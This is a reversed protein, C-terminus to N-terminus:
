QLAMELLVMRIGKGWPSAPVMIRCINRCLSGAVSGAAMDELLILSVTGGISWVSCWPIGGVLMTTM